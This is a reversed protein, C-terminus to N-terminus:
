IYEATAICQSLPMVQQVAIIKLVWFLSEVHWKSDFAVYHLIVFAPESTYRPVAEWM